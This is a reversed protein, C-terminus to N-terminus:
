ESGALAEGQSWWQPSISGKLSSRAVKLWHYRMQHWHRIADLWQSDSADSTMQRLYAEAQNQHRKAETMCAVTVLALMKEQEATTAGMMLRQLNGAATNQHYSTEYNQTHINKLISSDQFAPLFKMETTLSCFVQEAYICASLKQFVNDWVAYAMPM